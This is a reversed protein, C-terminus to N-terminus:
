WKEYGILLGGTEAYYSCLGLNEGIEVRAEPVATHLRVKLKQAAPLNRCHHILVRGRSLGDKQLHAVLTELARSEGRCKDMPELTGEASARGVVRIGLVGAVKAVAPSVRGNAAFNNLSELMFLLGTQKTYEGIERCIEEYVLGEALLQELKRVMLTMEPGASLSDVVHVRAGPHEAEYMQKAICAANWSGSLGSTISVCFVDEGDGFAELWDGPSPCSTKSRGKYRGFYDLMAGVDLEPTDAFERDDTVVKMPAAGFAANELSRLNAASDAAIRTKRM